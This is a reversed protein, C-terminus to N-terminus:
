SYYDVIEQIFLRINYTYQNLLHKMEKIDSADLNRGITEIVSQNFDDVSITNLAEIILNIKDNKFFKKTGSHRLHAVKGSNLTIMRSAGNTIFELQVPVQTSLGLINLATNKAPVIRQNNKRAIQLLIDYDTAPVYAQFLTNFKPKQYIGNYVRQLKGEDSLRKLEIHSLHRNALDIFDSVIFFNGQKSRKIRNRIKEVQNIKKM